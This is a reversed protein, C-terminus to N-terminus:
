KSVGLDSKFDALSRACALPYELPLLHGAFAIAEFKAGPIFSAMKEMVRAPATTDEQGALCLVPIDLDSLSSRRDFGSLCRVALEYTLPSVAGMMDLAQPMCQVPAQSGMMAPAIAQAVERM